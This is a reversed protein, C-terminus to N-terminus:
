FDRKITTGPSTKDELNPTLFTSYILKKALM